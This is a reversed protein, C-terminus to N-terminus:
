PRDRQADDLKVGALFLDVSARVWLEIRESSIKIGLHAQRLSNDITLSMFQEGAMDFDLPRLESQHQRLIAAIAQLAPKRGVDNALRGFEPRRQAESIIVRYVEVSQRTLAFTTLYRALELLTERLAGRQTQLEDIPILWRNILDRLVANFLATKDSYRSYLTRKSIRAAEAVADMSTGDFGSTLFTEGAIRLIHEERQEVEILKPRGPRCYAPTRIAAAKRM